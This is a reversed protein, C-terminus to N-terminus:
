GPLAALEKRAAKIWFAFHPISADPINKEAVALAAEAEARRGLRILCRSKLLLLDFDDYKDRWEMQMCSAILKLSEEPQGKKLLLACQRRHGMLPINDACSFYGDLMTQAEDLRDNDILLSAASLYASARFSPEILKDDIVRTLLSLKKDPDHLDFCGAWAMLIYYRILPDTCEALFRELFSEGCPTRLVADVTSDIESMDMPFMIGGGSNGASVRKMSEHMSLAQAFDGQRRYAEGMLFFLQYRAADCLTLTQMKEAAALVAAPDGAARLQLLEAMGDGPAPERDAYFYNVRSLTKLRAKIHDPCQADGLLDRRLADAAVADGKEMYIEAQQRLADYRLSSDPSRAPEALDLLAADYKKMRRLLDCRNSLAAYRWCGSLSLAVCQDAALLAAEPDRNRQQFIILFYVGCKKADSVDKRDVYRRLVALTEDVKGTAEASTYLGHLLYYRVSDSRSREVEREVGDPGIGAADMAKVLAAFEDMLSPKVRPAMNELEAMREGTDVAASFDNAAIQARFTKVEDDYRSQILIETTSM